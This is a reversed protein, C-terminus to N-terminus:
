RLAIEYWGTNEVTFEWLIKDGSSRWSTEDIVNILKSYTNYPYLAANKKAGARIFSDSKVSYDEAELVTTEPVTTGKGMQACYESYTLAEKVKQIYIKDIVLDQAETTFSFNHKGKTLMAKFMGMDIDLNDRLIDIYKGSVAVQEPILQNGLLDSKYESSADAWLLPLSVVNSDGDVSLTAACDMYLADKPTYKLAFYYEGDEPIEADFSLAKTAEVTVPEGRDVVIADAFLTEGVWNSVAFETYDPTSAATSGSQVANSETGSASSSFVFTTFVLILVLLISFARKAKTM